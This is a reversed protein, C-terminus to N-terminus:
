DVAGWGNEKRWIVMDTEWCIVATILRGVVESIRAATTATDLLWKVKLELYYQQKIGLEHRSSEKGTQRKAIRM